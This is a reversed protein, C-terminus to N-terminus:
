GLKYTCTHSKKKKWHKWHDWVDWLYNCNELPCVFRADSEQGQVGQLIVVIIASNYLESTCLLNRLHLKCEFHHLDLKQSFYLFIGSNLNRSSVASISFCQCWHRWVTSRSKLTTCASSSHILSSKAHETFVGEPVPAITALAFLTKWLWLAVFLLSLKLTLWYAFLCM